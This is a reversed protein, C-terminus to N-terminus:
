PKPSDTMIQTPTATESVSPEPQPQRVLPRNAIYLLLVTGWLVALLVAIWCRLRRMLTAGLQSSEKVLLLSGAFTTPLLLLSLNGATLWHIWNFGYAVVTMWTALISGLVIRQLLRVLHTPRLKVRVRIRRDRKPDASALVLLEESKFLEEPYSSLRRSGDESLLAFSRKNFEVNETTIRCSIQNVQADKYVVPENLINRKGSEVERKEQVRITFPEGLPVRCDSMVVWFDGYQAYRLLIKYALISTEPPAHVALRSVEGLYNKLKRLYGLAIDNFETVEDLDFDHIEKLLPLAILPNQSPNHKNFTIGVLQNLLGRIPSDRREWIEATAPIWGGVIGAARFYNKLVDHKFFSNAQYWQERDVAFIAMFFRVLRRDVLLASANMPVKQALGQQLLLVTLHALYRAQLDSSKHRHVRYAPKDAISLEFGLPPRRPVSGVPLRLWAEAKHDAWHVNLAPDFRLANGLSSVHITRTRESFLTSPFDIEEVARLRWRTPEDMLRFTIQTSTGSELIEDLEPM